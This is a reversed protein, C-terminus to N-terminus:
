SGESFTIDEVRQHYATHGGFGRILGEGAKWFWDVYAHSLGPKQLAFGSLVRPLAAPEKPNLGM